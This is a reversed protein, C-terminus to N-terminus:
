GGEIPLTYLDGLLDFLLTRGDPSVDISMWTGESTTFSIARTPQAGQAHSWGVFLCLFLAIAPHASRTM